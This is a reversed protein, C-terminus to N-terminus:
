LHAIPGPLADALHVLNATARNAVRLSRCPPWRRGPRRVSVTSMQSVLGPERANPQGQPRQAPIPRSNSIYSMAALM